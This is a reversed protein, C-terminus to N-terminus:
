EVWYMLHPPHCEHRAPSPSGTSFIPVSQGRLLHFVAVQLLRSFLLTYLLTTYKLKMIGGNLCSQAKAMNLDTCNGFNSENGDQNNAVSAPLAKTKFSPGGTTTPFIVGPNDGKSGHSGWFAPFYAYAGPNLVIQFHWRQEKKHNSLLSKPQKKTYRQGMWFPPWYVALNKQPSRRSHSDCWADRFDKRCGPALHRKGIGPIQPSPWHMPSTSWISITLEHSNSNELSFHCM